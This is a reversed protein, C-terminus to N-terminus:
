GLVGLRVITRRLTGEGIRERRNWAEVSFLLHHGEVTQLEAVVTFPEGIPTPRRHRICIEYGVTTHDPALFPDTVEQATVEMEMIMAPATLIRRGGTHATTMSEMVVVEREGRLGPRIGSINM